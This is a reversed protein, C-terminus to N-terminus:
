GALNALTLQCSALSIYSCHFNPLLLRKKAPKVAGKCSLDCGTCAQVFQLHFYAAVWRCLVQNEMNKAAPHHHSSPPLSRRNAPFHEYKQSIWCSTFRSLVRFLAWNTEPSPYNTVECHKFSVTVRSYVQDQKWFIPFHRTFARRPEPVHGLRCYGILSPLREHGWGILLSLHTTQM